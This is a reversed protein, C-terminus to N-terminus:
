TYPKVSSCKKKWREHVVIALKLWRPIEKNPQTVSKVSDASNGTIKAIDSNTLGLEKKMAKFREHWNM